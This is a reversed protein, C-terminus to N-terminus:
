TKWKMAGMKYNQSPQGERIQIKSRHSFIPFLQNSEAYETRHSGARSSRQPPLQLYGSPWVSHGAKQSRRKNGQLNEHQNGGIIQAKGKSGRLQVMDIRM